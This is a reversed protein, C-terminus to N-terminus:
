KATATKMIITIITTTTTAASALTRGMPMYARTSIWRLLYVYMFAIYGPMTCVHNSDKMYVHWCFTQSHIPAGYTHIHENGNKKRSINPNLNFSRNNVRQISQRKNTEYEMTQYNCTDTSVVFLSSSLKALIAFGELWWWEFGMLM